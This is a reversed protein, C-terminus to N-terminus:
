ATAVPGYFGPFVQETERMDRFNRSWQGNAIYFAIEEPSELKWLKQMVENRTTDILKAFKEHLPDGSATVALFFQDAQGSKVIWHQDFLLRRPFWRSKSKMTVRRAVKWLDLRHEGSRLKAITPM